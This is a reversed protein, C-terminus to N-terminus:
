NSNKYGEVWYKITTINGWIIGKVNHYKKHKRASFLIESYKLIKSVKELTYSDLTKSRITFCAGRIESVAKPNPRYNVHTNIVKDIKELAQLISVKDV